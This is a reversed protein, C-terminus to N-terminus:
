NIWFLLVFFFLFDFLPIGFILFFLLFLSTLVFWSWLSFMGFGNKFLLYLLWKIFFCNNVIFVMFLNPLDYFLICGMLFYQLYVLLHWGLQIVIWLIMAMLFWLLFTSTCYLFELWAMFNLAMSDFSVM